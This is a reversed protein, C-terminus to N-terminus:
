RVLAVFMSVLVIVNTIVGVVVFLLVFRAIRYGRRLLFGGASALVGLAIQVVPPILIVRPLGSMLLTVLLFMLAGMVLLGGFIIAILGIVDTNSSRAM